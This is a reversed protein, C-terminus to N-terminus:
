GDGEIKVRKPLPFGFALFLTWHTNRVVYPIHLLVFDIVASVYSKVHFVGGIRLSFVVPV